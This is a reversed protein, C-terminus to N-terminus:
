ADGWLAWAALGLLTAGVVVGGAIAVKKTTSMGTSAPPCTSVAGSSVTLDEYSTTVTVGGDITSYPSSVIKDPGCHDEVVILTTANPPQVDHDVSVITVMATAPLAAQLSAKTENQFDTPLTGTSTKSTTRIRHGQKLTFPAAGMMRATNM